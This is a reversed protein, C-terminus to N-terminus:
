TPRASQCVTYPYRSHLRDYRDLSRDRRLARDVRDHAMRSSCHASVPSSVRRAPGPRDVYYGRDGYTPGYYPVATPNMANARLYRYYASNMLVDTYLCVM